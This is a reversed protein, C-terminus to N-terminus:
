TSKLKFSTATGYFFFYPMGSNSSSNLFFITKLLLFESFYICLILSENNLGIFYKALVKQPTHTHPYSKDTNTNAKRNMLCVEEEFLWLGHKQLLCSQKAMSDATMFCSLSWQNVKPRMLCYFQVSQCFQIFFLNLCLALSAM